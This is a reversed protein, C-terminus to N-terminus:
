IIPRRGFYSARVYLLFDNQKIPGLDHQTKADGCERTAQDAKIAIKLALRNAQPRKTDHTNRRGHDHHQRISGPVRRFNGVSGAPDNLSDKGADAKEAGADDDAGLMIKSNTSESASSTGPERSADTDGAADPL